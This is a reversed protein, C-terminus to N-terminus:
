QIRCSVRNGEGRHYAYVEGNELHAYLLVVYGCKWCFDGQGTYVVAGMPRIEPYDQVSPRM